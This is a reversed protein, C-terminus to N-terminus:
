WRAPFRSPTTRRTGVTSLMPPRRAGLRVISNSRTRVPPESRREHAAVASPMLLTASGCRDLDRGIRATADPNREGPMRGAAVHGRDIDQVSRHGALTEDALDHEDARRRDAEEVVLGGREFTRHGPTSTCAWTSSPASEPVSSRSGSSARARPSRAAAPSIIRVTTRAGMQPGMASREAPALRDVVCQERGRQPEIPAAAQEEVHAKGSPAPKM